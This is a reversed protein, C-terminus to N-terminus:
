AAQRRGLALLALLDDIATARGYEWAFDTIRMIRLGRRQLWIDKAHDRDTDQLAIHWPRGDLELALEYDRWLCDIEFPGLHVNKDYPPIRPDTAAYADFSRELGSKRDSPDLYRNLLKKLTATGPHREHRALTARLSKPDFSRKRVAETVLKILEDPRERPALELLLRPVSSYRLGLRSRTESRHPTSASRHVILGPRKPTHDAVVTAEIAYTNIACLGHV